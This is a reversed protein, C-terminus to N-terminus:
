TQKNLHIKSTEEQFQIEEFRTKELSNNRYKLSVFIGQCKSVAVKMAINFHSAMMRSEDANEQCFLEWAHPTTFGILELFTKEIENPLPHKM